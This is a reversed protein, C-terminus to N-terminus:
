RSIQIWWGMGPGDVQWRAGWNKLSYRVGKGSGLTTRTFGGAVLDAEGYPDHMLFQQTNPDWGVVLSWHGGGSPSAATGHHLWGVPCPIGKTLQQILAKNDGNTRFQARIGLCSLAQVQAAASTSDGYRQVLQLYHDDTQGKGSLCGPKLFAAAMACSSSFCMREGQNTASDRQSFYPVVLQITQAAISAV